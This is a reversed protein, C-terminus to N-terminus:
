LESIDLCYSVRNATIDNKLKLLMDMKKQMQEKYRQNEDEQRKKM